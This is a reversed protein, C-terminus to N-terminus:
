IAVPKPKAVYIIQRDFQRKKKADNVTIIVQLAPYNGLSQALIHWAYHKGLMTANGSSTAGAVPLTLLGLQLKAAVNQSVWHAVTKQHLYNDDRIAVALARSVAILAIAIVAVAILVEILTFGRQTNNSM